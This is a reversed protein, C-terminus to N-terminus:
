LAMSSEKSMFHMHQRISTHTDSPAAETFRIASELPSVKAGLINIGLRIVSTLSYVLESLDNVLQSSVGVVATQNKRSPVRGIHLLHNQWRTVHESM